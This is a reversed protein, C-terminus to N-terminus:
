VQEGRTSIQEFLGTIGSVLYIKDATNGYYQRCEQASRFSFVKKGLEASKKIIEVNEWNGTGVAFGSDVIYAADAILKEARSVAESTIPEFPKESVVESCISKAIPYDADNEHIIGSTLAFGKRSLARYLNTGSSNGGTVFIDNGQKGKLEISGYMENYEAGKIDYLEQIIGKHIIEEPTGQAVVEGKHVLLVIQCGKLALDIDHLSLICTIGRENSLKQLVRIVEVKHKIDLHSTPEDLIILEPEQVLARAIMVKQKEGDSLESYFRNKLFTAGVVELSEDIIKKDEDSLKGLFNTYPTRGMAILEYVSTLEPAVADTLVLSVKRAIEKKKMERIDTGDIEVAGKVPALLGSLTRLITSKGAGNPGLLCIVQGRLADIHVDSIVTHKGYGVDLNQTKIIHNM